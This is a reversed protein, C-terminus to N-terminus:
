RPDYFTDLAPRRTGDEVEALKEFLGVIGDVWSYNDIVYMIYMGKYKGHVWKWKVYGQKGDGWPILRLWGDTRSMFHAFAWDAAAFRDQLAQVVPLSPVSGNDSTAVATDTGDAGVFANKNVEKRRHAM